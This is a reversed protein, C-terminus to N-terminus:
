IDLTTAREWETFQASYNNWDNRKLNLYAESFETGLAAKLADYSAVGGSPGGACGACALALMAAGLVKM